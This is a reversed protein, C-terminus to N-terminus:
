TGTTKPIYRPTWRIHHLSFATNQSTAVFTFANLNETIDCLAAKISVRPLEKFRELNGYVLAEATNREEESLGKATSQINDLQYTIVAMMGIRTYCEVPSFQCCNVMTSHWNGLKWGQRTNSINISVFMLVMYIGLMAM